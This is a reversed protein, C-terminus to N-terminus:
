LQFGGPDLGSGPPPPLRNHFLQGGWIGIELGGRLEGLLCYSQGVSLSGFLMKWRVGTLSTQQELPLFDLAPCPM